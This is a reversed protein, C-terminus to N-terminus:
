RKPKDGCYFLDGCLHAPYWRFGCRACYGPNRISELPQLSEPNEPEVYVAIPKKVTSDETKPKPIEMAGKSIDLVMDEIEPEKDALVMDGSVAQITAFARTLKTVLHRELTRRLERAGFEKSTGEKILFDKARASAEVSVFKGAKLIRDQILTLEIDLIQRLVDDTLARFVIMRDIRNFFEPSFFKMVASKSARYIDEDLTTAAAAAEATKVFGYGGSTQLLKKVEGSGLNSTMVVICKSFDIEKNKGSTLTARDMIGLLLQHVARHAKEIEDFLIIAYKPGKGKFKAEILEQTIRPPVDSSVYGPPSGLLKAIEHSEQYEACDVKILSVDMLNAFTEVIHTKGSGTPGVFLLTSLPKKPDNMGAMFTEHVRVFQKIARDQGAVKALLGKELEQIESPVKSDDMRIIV